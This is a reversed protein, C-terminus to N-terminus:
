AQDLGYLEVANDRFMARALELAREESLYDRRVKEVLVDAVCERAMVLHGYILEPYGVDSGFGLIRYGPVLDLWEALIQRSAATSIVYMWAMNLWVNPYHKGLMGLMRSYPYGAHFLDFRVRPFQKLLPILLLPDSDPVVGWNGQVGTHIQFVLGMSDALDALFFIVHDQLAKTQAPSLEEGQLAAGFARGADADSVPESHLTRTYAHALKIGVAGRGVYDETVRQLASKASALDTVDVGSTEQLTRRTDARHLNLAPEMRLVATFTEPEWEEFWPINRVQTELNCLSRTVHGYWHPDRSKERIADNVYRWNSDALEGESLGFLGQYTVLNHRWYSVNGAKALVAKLREWREADSNTGAYIGGGATTAIDREFYSTLTFLDFGGAAYYERRLMTHSHCDVTRLGRLEQLLSERLRQGSDM